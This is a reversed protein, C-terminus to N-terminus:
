NLGNKLYESPTQGTHKKFATNFSSKSKYGVENAIGMISYNALEPSKAIQIFEKVRYHNLLEFFSKEMHNNILNSLLHSPVNLRQAVDQLKLDPHTFIKDNEFLATLKSILDSKTSSDIKMSAHRASFDPLLQNSNFITQYAILYVFGSILLTLVFNGYVSYYGSSISYITFIVQELAILILVWNVKKLWSVRMEASVLYNKDVSNLSKIMEIRSLLIYVALHISYLVFRSISLTSAELKGAMFDDLLAIAQEINGPSDQLSVMFLGIGYPILHLLQVAKFRFEQHIISRTYFYFLPGLLLIMGRAFGAIVSETRYLYGAYWINNINIALIILMLMLLVILAKKNAPPRIAFLVMLFVCQSASAILLVSWLNFVM